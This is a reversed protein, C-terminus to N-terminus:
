GDTETLGLSASMFRVFDPNDRWVQALQNALVTVVKEEADGDALDGMSYCAHLVEHLLIRAKDDGNLDERVRIIRNARDCEGDRDVSHAAHYDWDVVRYVIPGVRLYTPFDAM